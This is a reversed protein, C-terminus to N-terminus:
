TKSLWDSCYPELNAKHSKRAGRKSPNHMVNYPRSVFGDNREIENKWLISFISVWFMFTQGYDSRRTPHKRSSQHRYDAEPCCSCILVVTISLITSTSQQLLISLTVLAVSYTFQLFCRGLMIMVVIISFCYFWLLLLLLFEKRRKLFQQQHQVLLVLLLLISIKATEGVLVLGLTAFQYYNINTRRRFLFSFHGAITEQM